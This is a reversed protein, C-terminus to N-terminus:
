CVKNRNQRAIATICVVPRILVLYLLENTPIVM